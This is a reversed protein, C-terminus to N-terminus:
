LPEHQQQQNNQRGNSNTVICGKVSRQEGVPCIQRVSFPMVKMSDHIAFMVVTKRNSPNTNNNNTIKDAMVTKYYFNVYVFIAGAYFHGESYIM